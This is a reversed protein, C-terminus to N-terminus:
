DGLKRKLLRLQSNIYQRVEAAPQYVGYHGECLIDANLSLLEELSAIAKTIDGGFAPEYPGHIDQGFLVRKGNIDLYVAVSGPTHGPIHLINLMYKKLCFKSEKEILKVDVPCAQYEIGYFEAGVNKGSEIADADLKHAVIKAQYKERFAALSGTHDVHRHTAVVFTLEEPAFGALRINTLLHSFSYGAGSDVLVLEGADILYVCCDFPHSICPGGVIHVDDWICSPQMKKPM